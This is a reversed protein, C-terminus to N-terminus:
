RRTLDDGRYLKGLPCEDCLAVSKKCYRKATEVIMAHFQNYKRVDKPFNSHVLSQVSEYAADHPILGHRFFIRKTYADVVFFPMSLAYLLIADATENGVGKVLLLEARLRGPDMKKMKRIDGGSKGIIYRTLEKLREAKIRFYGSPKILSSIKAKTASHMETVSLLRHTRLFSIAKEVNRWATNQTLIAGVMVEFDTRAPWWKLDGYRAEFLSYM